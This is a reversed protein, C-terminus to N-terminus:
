KQHRERRRRIYKLIQLRWIGRVILNGLLASLAGLFICGLLLPRWVHGFTEGFWALSLSFNVAEAPTDLLWAGVKYAFYYMPPMTVPNTIWVLSVAIPLNVRAPIAIAAALLMQFPVPIWTIFLGASFAGAVSRRNLHWLNPDNLLRGFRKLHRHEKVRNQDPFYRKFFWKPM